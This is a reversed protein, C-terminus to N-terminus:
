TFFITAHKNKCNVKLKTNYSYKIVVHCNKHSKIISKCKNKSIINYVNKKIMQIKTTCPNM